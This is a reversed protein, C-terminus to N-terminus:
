PVTGFFRGNYLSAFELLRRENSNRRQGKRVEVLLIYLLAQGGRLLYVKFFNPKERSDIYEKFPGKVKPSAYM